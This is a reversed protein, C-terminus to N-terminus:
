SQNHRLSFGSLYWTTSANRRLSAILFTRSVTLATFMSVMIGIALTTAFGRVVSTGLWYLIASTILSSVNSDRISTWAREFGEEMAPQLPKGRSLEEKMREFILINADVAMGVSLIFGAIGATTLTVGVLKFLALTIVAYITLALVALLGPLRYWIIMFLTVLLFAALAARLSSELSAIGLSAEVSQQSLLGIPVPLAGSNLNRVLAKAYDTTFQGTIVARGGSIPENVNPASLLEGDVFIGIPRGVNRKTMNEFLKGGEASFQIGIIPTNPVNPDFELEAKDFYRGTLLAPLFYQNYDINGKASAANFGTVTSTGTKLERFELSPTQGIYKIAQNIDRIGALEVILRWNSGVHNVEVLPEAVGFTNVRREIVDRLGAMAEAQDPVNTHSFDAQYVLHTGGQLDLGLRFPKIISKPLGFFAPVHKNWFGPADFVALALALLVILGAIIRRSSISLAEKRDSM